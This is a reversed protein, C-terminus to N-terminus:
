FVSSLSPHSIGLHNSGPSLSPLFTSRTRNKSRKGFVVPPDSFYNGALMFLSELNGKWAPSWKDRKSPFSPARSEHTDSNQKQVFLRRSFTLHIVSLMKFFRLPFISVNTPGCDNPEGILIELEHNEYRFSLFLLQFCFFSGLFSSSGVNRRQEKKKREKM